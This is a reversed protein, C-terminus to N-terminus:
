ILWLVLLFLKATKEDLTAMCTTLTVEMPMFDLNENKMTSFLLTDGTASKYRMSSFWLLQLTPISLVQNTIVNASLICDRGPKFNPDQINTLSLKEDCCCKLELQTPMRKCKGCRCWFSSDEGTLRSTASRPTQSKTQDKDVQNGSNSSSSDQSNSYSYRKRNAFMTGPPPLPTEEDRDDRIPLFSYPTSYAM